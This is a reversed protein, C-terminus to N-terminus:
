GMAGPEPVGSGQHITNTDTQLLDKFAKQFVYLLPAQEGARPAARTRASSERPRPDLNDGEPATDSPPKDMTANTEPEVTNLKVMHEINQGQPSMWHGLVTALAPRQRRPVSKFQAYGHLDGDKRLPLYYHGPGLDLLDVAKQLKNVHSGPFPTREAMRDHPHGAEKVAHVSPDKAAQHRRYLGYGLGGAAGLAAGPLVWHSRSLNKTKQFLNELQDEVLRRHTSPRLGNILGTVDDMPHYFHNRLHVTKQDYHDLIKNKVGKALLGGALAGTLAPKGLSPKNDEEEGNKVTYPPGANQDPLLGGVPAANGDFNTSVDLGAQEPRSGSSARAGPSASGTASTHPEGLIRQLLELPIV